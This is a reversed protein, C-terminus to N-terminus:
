EIDSYDSSDSSDSVGYHHTVTKWDGSVIRNSEVPSSSTTMTRGVIRFKLKGRLNEGYKDLFSDWEGVM